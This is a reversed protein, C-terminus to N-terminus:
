PFNLGAAQRLLLKSLICYIMSMETATLKCSTLIVRLENIKKM